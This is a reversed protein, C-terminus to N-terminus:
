YRSEFKMAALFYVIIAEMIEERKNMVFPGYRAIPENLPKGGILLMDLPSSANDAAKIEVGKGDPNTSFM